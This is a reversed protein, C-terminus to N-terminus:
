CDCDNEEEDEAKVRWGRCPSVSVNESKKMFTTVKTLVEWM